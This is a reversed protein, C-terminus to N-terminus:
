DSAPVPNALPEGAFFRRLNEAVMGTMNRLSADGGGATHPTLVVNPVDRWRAAPTPEEEFVDLAAGGLKGSKLAEILADEDVASGRAINVLVGRPGLAEIVARSILGKNTDDARHCVILVDSEEALKLVSDVYPYAADPKARPGWWAIACGFPKLRDAVALGIAGLGTIGVKLTKISRTPPPHKDKLWEGARLQRDGAVLKRVEAILLGVAQDAVDEHNAHPSHTVEVGRARLGKVDIAEFGSGIVCVLGLHPLAAIEPEVPRSGLTVLARAPRAADAAFAAIGDKPMELVTYAGEFLRRLGGLGPALLVTPKEADSM